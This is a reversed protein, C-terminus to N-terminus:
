LIYKLKYRQYQPFKLKAKEIDQISGVILYDTKENDLGHESADSFDNSDAENRYVRYTICKGKTEFFDKENKFRWDTIVLQSKDSHLEYANRCWYDPDSERKNMALEIYYNRLLKDQIFMFDKAIDACEKTKFRLGLSQNVVEKVLDAMGLRYGKIDFFPPNSKDALIYFMPNTELNNPENYEQVIKGNKIQTYFTDKGSRKYGCILHAEM